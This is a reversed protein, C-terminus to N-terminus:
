SPIQLSCVALTHVLMQTCMLFGLCQCGCWYKSVCFYMKTSHQKVDVSVTPKNPVAEKVKVCSRLESLFVAYWSVSPWGKFVSSAPSNFVTLYMIRM